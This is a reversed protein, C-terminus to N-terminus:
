SADHLMLVVAASPALLELHGGAASLRQEARVLVEVAEATATRVQELDVVVRRPEDAAGATALVRDLEPAAAADLDGAVRVLTVGTRPSHVEAHFAPPTPRRQLTSGAADKQEDV